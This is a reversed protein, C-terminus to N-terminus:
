TGVVRAIRERFSQIRTTEVPDDSTHVFRQAPLVVVVAQHHANEIDVAKLDKALVTELLEADVIDVLTQLLNEDLERELGFLLLVVLLADLPLVDIEEVVLNATIQDLGLYSSPSLSPSFPFFFVFVFGGESSYL